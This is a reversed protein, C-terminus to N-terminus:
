KLAKLKWKLKEILTKEKKNTGYYVNALEEAVLLSAKKMSEDFATQHEEIFDIFSEFASEADIIEEDMFDFEMESYFAVDTGFSDKITEVPALENKVIDQLKKKEKKSIAGDIDAVAYLLKGLESYFEKYIM